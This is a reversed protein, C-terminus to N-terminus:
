SKAGHRLPEAKGFRLVFGNVLSRYLPKPLYSRLIQRAIIKPPVGGAVFGVILDRIAMVPRIPAMHYALVTARYGRRARGTLMHGCRELWDLSTEYGKVYSTRGAETADLWITLPQEIMRFRAGAGQLRVCFDLDQGKKLAPDFLVDQALPTSVVMTSTQMFQNACFLYEGVDEDERIGRDPRIWYRDVGRDVKMRSYLVTLGDDGDLAKAMTSLKGPLFLDDSDLFAIYRGEAAMIGANRAAGGGANDQRIYRIRPDGIAEIVPQPDDRSGDDVVVIEYDTWDQSLVSRITEGVQAARNYLPIVVSFFPTTM